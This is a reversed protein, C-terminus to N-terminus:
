SQIRVIHGNGFICGGFKRLIHFCFGGLKFFQDFVRIQFSLLLGHFNNYKRAISNARFGHSGGNCNQLSNRFLEVKLEVQLVVESAMVAQLLM